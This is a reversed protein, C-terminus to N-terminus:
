RRTRDPGSAMTAGTTLADDGFTVTQVQSRGIVEARGDVSTLAFSARTTDHRLWVTAEVADAGGSWALERRDDSVIRWLRYGRTEPNHAHRWECRAAKGWGSDTPLTRGLCELHLAELRDSDAVVVRDWHSSALTSGSAHLVRVRYGYVTGALVTRDVHTTESLRRASFVTMPESTATRRELVYGAARPHTAATWHCVVASGGNDDHLQRCELAVRDTPSMGTPTADAAVDLAQRPSEALAPLAAGLAILLAAAAALLRPRRDSSPTGTRPSPKTM